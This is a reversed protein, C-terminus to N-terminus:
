KWLGVLEEKRAWGTQGNEFTLHSWGLFTHDVIALTGANLPSTKQATDAETPISRLSGSRVAIVARTDAANGYAVVGFIGVLAFISCLIFGAFGSWFLVPSRRGYANFLMLGLAVAAAIAAAVILRQWNGPSTLAALSPTAGPRLFAALPSAVAGSKDATLAFQWRAAPDAPNQIFAAASQAAAENWRDQQALALSLNHRAIADTPTKAVVSRWSTEASAFNGARYAAVPDPAQAILPTIFVAIAITALFPALNHSRFLQLPSFGPVPKTTLASQARAIWDTPLPAENGYLARDSEKWLTSWLQDSPTTPPPAILRKSSGPSNGSPTTFARAPPAAHAIEWLAAADRQWDLLLETRQPGTAASLKALTAALRARAARRPLAPDTQRARQTALGAWFVLLAALPLLAGILVQRPTLPLPAIKTGILPDRPIGSPLTPVPPASLAPVSTPSGSKRPAQGESMAPDNAPPTLTFKPAEPPAITLSHRPTSITKYTGTKPDFCVFNIPGLTYTGPKTPVLVVDEALTVDFLKGEAPTRKAQPQVVNFDKSVDRSPLGAVDPWNGTGSLELTWTIPEGVAANAPVLKSTLKFQGIAGSFGAPQPPLGKVEITPTNTAVSYQGYQRQQFFGFGSVGVSLSVIHTAPNLKITGALRAIGRSRFSIGVHPGGGAAFDIQEPNSWSETLLPDSPWEFNRQFQPVYSRAAEASTALDFVEGVWVSNPTATLKATAASELPTGTNGVTAGVPDFRAAAVRQRGKDTEVDFAPIEARENRSLLAAYTYIVRQSVTLNVVTTNQSQGYFQLTLGNVRPLTPQGKPTCNEFVLALAQAQGVPLSGSPPDWRVSQGRAFHPLALAVAFVFLLRPRM